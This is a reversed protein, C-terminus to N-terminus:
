RLLITKKVSKSMKKYSLSLSDWGEQFYKLQSIIAPGNDLYKVIDNLQIFVNFARDVLYESIETFNYGSVQREDRQLLNPLPELTIRTIICVEEKDTKPIIEENILRISENLTKPKETVKLTGYYKFINSETFHIIDYTKCVFASVYHTFGKQIRETANAGEPKYSLYKGYVETKRRYELKVFEPSEKLYDAFPDDHVDLIDSMVKIKTSGEFDLYRLRDLTSDTTQNFASYASYLLGSRRTCKGCKDWQKHSWLNEESLKEKCPILRSQTSWPTM